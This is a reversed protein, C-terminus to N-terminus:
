WIRKLGEKQYDDFGKDKSLLIFKENIAQWALMRDFPDKNKYRPLKYFSAATHPDLNLFNFGLSRAAEPIDDPNKGKLDLKGISVKLAIEWLSVTSIFINSKLDLLITKINNSLKKPLVFHWLLVHTDLLYDM